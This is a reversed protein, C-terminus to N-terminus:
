FDLKTNHFRYIWITTLYETLDLHIQIFIIQKSPTSPLPLLLWTLSILFNSLFSKVTLTDWMWTVTNRRKEKGKNFNELIIRLFLISALWGQVVLLATFFIQIQNYRRSKRIYKIPSLINKIRM